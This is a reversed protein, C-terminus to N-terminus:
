LLTPHRVVEDLDTPRPAALLQAQVAVRRADRRSLQHTV